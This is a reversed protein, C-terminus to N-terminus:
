LEGEKRVKRCLKQVGGTTDTSCVEGDIAGRKQCVHSSATAM